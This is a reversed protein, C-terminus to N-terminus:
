LEPIEAFTRASEVVTGFEANADAAYLVPYPAHQKSYGDPLAVSIQYSRGTSSAKMVSSTVDTLFAPPSAQGQAHLIALFALILTRRVRM